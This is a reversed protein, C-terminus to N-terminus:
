CFNYELVFQLSRRSNGRVGSEFFPQSAAWAINPPRIQGNERANPRVGVTSKVRRHMVSPFRSVQLDFDVCRPILLLGKGLNRSAIGILKGITGNFVNIPTVIQRRCLRLGNGLMYGRMRLIGAARNLVEAPYYSLNYQLRLLRNLVIGGSLFGVNFFLLRYRRGRQSM